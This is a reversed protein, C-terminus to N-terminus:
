GPQGVDDAGDGAVVGDQHDGPVAAGAEVHAPGQGPQRDPIGGPCGSLWACIPEWRTDFTRSDRGWPCFTPMANEPPRSVETATAQIRSFPATGHAYVASRPWYSSGSRDPTGPRAASYPASIARM